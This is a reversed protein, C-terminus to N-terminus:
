QVVVPHEDVLVTKTEMQIRGVVQVRVTSIRAQGKAVTMGVSYTDTFLLTLGQKSRIRKDLVVSALNSLPRVKKSEEVAIGRMYASLQETLTNLEQEISSRRSGWDRLADSALMPLEGAPHGSLFSKLSDIAEDCAKIRFDYDHSEQVIRESARLASQLADYEAQPDPSCGILIVLSLLFTALQIKTAPL